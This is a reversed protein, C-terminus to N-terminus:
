RVPNSKNLINNEKTVGIIIEEKKSLRKMFETMGAYDREEIYKCYEKKYESTVIPPAIDQRIFNYTTILRGIRGNGDGFPHIRLFEIHFRAEKEFPDLGSWNKEYNDFLYYLSNRIQSPHTREVKSNIVIAEVNRYNDYEGGTLIKILEPLAYLIDKSDRVDLENLLYNFALHLYYHKIEQDHKEQIEEKETKYELVLSGNVARAIISQIYFSYLKDNEKIEKLM